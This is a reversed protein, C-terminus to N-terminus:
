KANAVGKRQLEDDVIQAFTDYPQAGSVFRGNIFFAPTGSVGYAMGQEADARWAGEHQGSDLCQAFAQPDLGIEAGSTKLDAVQLKQQNAFLKDHMEWFKGQDQACLAAEAAKPANPHIPLPYNRFVMRLRDGYTEQLRKMAPAVRACYPCQFDSFEVITVPADKPGKSAGGGESVTARPPELFVRVGVRDRLERLYESRRAQERQQSMNDAVLKKLEAEPKDKFRDKIGEYSANVEADTVAAVKSSVEVKLLEEVAVKRAAAEQALLREGVLDHLIRVEANWAETRIALLKGAAVEELEGLTVPAGGITAVVTAPPSAEAADAALARPASAVAALLLAHIIRM